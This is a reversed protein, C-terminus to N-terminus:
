LVVVNDRQTGGFTAALSASFAGFLLALFIWLSSHAMTKRAADAAQQMQTFANAVRQEADAESIGTRAAVVQGLYTKDDPSLSGQRLDNAFIVAVESRIAAGNAGSSAAGSTAPVNTTLQPVGSADVAPAPAPTTRLMSDIFYANPDIARGPTEAASVGATTAANVGGRAVGGLMSAAASALFAATIVLGVAWALFGHATDRFYVEDTHIGAWKTRLRGALYGGLGWAIIQMLIMWVIASASITSASAGANAWPSVASLGLGTGLALLILSLAAAAFAGAFVAPWSVGSGFTENKAPGDVRWTPEHAAVVTERAPVVRSAM